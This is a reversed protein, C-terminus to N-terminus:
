SRPTAPPGSADKLATLIWRGTLDGNDGKLIARQMTIVLIKPVTQGNPLKVPASLTVDKSVLEGDYKAVDVHTPGGNISMDVVVTESALKRKADGVKRSVAVGDELFKSWAAQVEADKAPLKKQEREAQLVRKIADLNEAQYSDKRKSFEVDEAKADDHARALSKLTLPRRREPSVSTIDFSTVIGDTKPDFAVAAFGALTTNDRLRSATFFQNLIPQEPTSSCAILTAVTLSFVFSRSM